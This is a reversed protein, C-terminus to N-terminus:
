TTASISSTRRSRKWSSRARKRRPKATSTSHPGRSRAPAIPDLDALTTGGFAPEIAVGTLANVAKITGNSGFVSQQGILLNGTLQM